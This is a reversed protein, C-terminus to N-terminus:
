CVACLFWCAALLPCCLVNLLWCGDALLSWYGVVVLLRCCLRSVVFVYVVCLCCVVCLLCGVVFLWCCVAFLVTCDVVFLSCRIVCSLWVAVFMLLCRRVVDCLVM